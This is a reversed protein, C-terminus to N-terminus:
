TQPWLWFLHLFAPWRVTYSKVSDPELASRSDDSEALMHKGSTKDGVIELELAANATTGQLCVAADAQQRARCAACYALSM